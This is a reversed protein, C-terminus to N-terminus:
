WGQRGSLLVHVMLEVWRDRETDAVECDGLIVNVFWGRIMIIFIEAVGDPDRCPIGDADACAKIFTSIQGVGLESREASTAGIEPFRHSESYILRNMEKLDGQLNLNLVHSAYAKLGDALDLRGNAKPLLLTSLSLHDVQRSIIARFLQAKSSFRSYLTTKSIGAIKVIKGMSTGGYGNQIFEQLAIDLLTQEIANTDETSPRGRSRGHKLTTNDCQSDDEM